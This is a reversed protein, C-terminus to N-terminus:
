KTYCSYANQPSTKAIKSLNETLTATKEIASEIYKDCASPTGIVSGLVRFGDVMTINIVEFVKKASERCNEKVILQCKSPKVNYGLAKGLVDLNDLIACLSRLDGAAGGDDAYWKQTINPKQLLEIRPNIGIGYMAMALPDGQTTGETSTLVTNNVYLNSPHKYSNALAHHLAPCLIEVNKLALERNLSNFANEADILLIAETETVISRKTFALNITLKERILM